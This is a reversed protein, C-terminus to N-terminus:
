TYIEYKKDNVSTFNLVMTNYPSNAWVKLKTDEIWKKLVQHIFFYLKYNLLCFIYIEKKM